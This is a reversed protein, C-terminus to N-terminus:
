LINGRKDRNLYASEGYYDKAAQNYAKAADEENDFTGLWRANNNVNLQTVWKKKHKHWTVGKFKSYTNKHGRRNGYQTMKDATRSFGGFKNPPTTVCISKLSAYCKGNFFCKMNQGKMDTYIGKSLHSGVIM